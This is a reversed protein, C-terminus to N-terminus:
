ARGIQSAFAAEHIFRALPHPTFNHLTSKGAVARGTPATHLTGSQGLGWGWDLVVMAGEHGKAQAEGEIEDIQLFTEVAM